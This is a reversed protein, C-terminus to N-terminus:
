LLTTNCRAFLLLSPSQSEGKLKDVYAAHQERAKAVDIAEPKEFLTLAEAFTEPIGRVLAINTFDESSDESPKSQGTFANDKFSVQLLGHSSAFTRWGRVFGASDYPNSTRALSHSATVIQCEAFNRSARTLCRLAVLGASTLFAMISDFSGRGDHDLIGAQAKVATLSKEGQQHV